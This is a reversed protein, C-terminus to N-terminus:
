AHLFAVKGFREPSTYTRRLFGAPDDQFVSDLVVPFHGAEHRALAQRLDETAGLCNGLIALNRMMVHGMLRGIESPPRVVGTYSSSQDEWGCTVYRANFAMLPAVQALYLDSFPDAVAHYGGAELAGAFGAARAIPGGRADATVLNAIGLTRLRAADRGSGTVGHVEVNLGALAALVFLSTNSRPATVLVREGSSLSLRRVMSHSTQGGISFCAAVAVDMAPPVRMVSDGPLVQLERSGHNSPVGTHRNGPQPPWCCNPIVRDGPVVQTVNNGVAVVEAVFDSGVVYYGATKDSTAMRLVLARDRFNLSFGLTHLLIHDPQAVPDFAPDPVDLIACRITVGELEFADSRPAAPYDRGIIALVRM